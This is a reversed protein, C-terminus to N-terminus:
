SVVEIEIDGTSTTIKCKASGTTEPIDVNGTDTSVVFVKESLITGTVDGTSTKVFIEGGDCSEFKVDGTSREVSLMESAVVNRLHVDGTSGESVFSKCFVDSIKTKGTSVNVCMKESCTVDAVTIHGTSVSLDLSEASIKEISIDGTSLKIKIDNEARALLSIDGTSGSIDISEFSFSGPVIVDGTSVKVSLAGYEGKPLMVTVKPTGVNIGIHEYWKRRDSLEIKLAGDDATVTHKANSEEYCVVSVSEGESPIFEISATDTLVQIDKIDGHFEYSNEEYKVTSLKSFDWKLMTMVGGFIMCGIVIFSVALILWIKASKKM